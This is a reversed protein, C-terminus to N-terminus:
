AVDDSKELEGTELMSILRDADRRITFGGRIQVDEQDSAIGRIDRACALAFGIRQSLECVRQTLDAIYKDRWDTMAGEGKHVQRRSSQSQLALKGLPLLLPGHLRIAKGSQPLLPSDKFAHASDHTVEKSTASSMESHARRLTM